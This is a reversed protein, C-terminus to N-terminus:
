RIVLRMRVLGASFPAPGSREATDSDQLDLNGGPEDFDTMLVLVGRDM